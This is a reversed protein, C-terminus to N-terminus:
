SVLSDGEPVSDGGGGSGSVWDGLVSIFFVTFLSVLRISKVLGPLSSLISSDGTVESTGADVGRLILFASFCLRRSSTSYKEM